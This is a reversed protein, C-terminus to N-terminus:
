FEIKFTPDEMKKWDDGKSGGSDILDKGVSYIIKKEKSRTKVGFSIKNRGMSLGLHEMNKDRYDSINKKEINLPLKQNPDSNLLINNIKEFLKEMSGKTTKSASIGIDDVFVSIRADKKKLFEKTEWSIKLFLDLNCWLSLRPSTAFGRALVKKGNSGKKGYPVCCLDSLIRSAKVSCGCKKCFFYFVREQSNHEFFKSIDLGLKTRKKRKGLLFYTAQVHDKGSLGGFIFEPILYDNPTLIKKDILWLLRGLKTEKCSRVFKEKDPESCRIVDHWYKEKNELVENILKLAKEKSLRKSSIRKAIENKSRIGLLPYRNKNKLSM